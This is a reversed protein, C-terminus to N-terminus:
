YVGQGMNQSLIQLLPNTGMEQMGAGMIQMM